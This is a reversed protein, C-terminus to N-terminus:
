AASELLLPCSNTTELVSRQSVGRRRPPPRRARPRGPSDVGRGDCRGGGAGIWGQRRRLDRCSAPAPRQRQEVPLRRRRDIRVQRRALLVLGSAPSTRAAPSSRHRRCGSGTGRLPSGSREGVAVERGVALGDGPLELWADLPRITLRERCVVNSEGPLVRRIGVDRRDRRAGIRAHGIDYDHIGGGHGHLERIGRRAPRDREGPDVPHDHRLVDELRVHAGVRRGRRRVEHRDRGSGYRTTSSRSRPRASRQRRCRDLRGLDRVLEIREVAVRALRDEVLHLQLAAAPIGHNRDFSIVSRGTRSRRSGGPRRRRSRDCTSAPPLTSSTAMKPANVSRIMSFKLSGFLAVASPSRELLCNGFGTRESGATRSAM